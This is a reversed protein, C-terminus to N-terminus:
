PSDCRLYPGVNGEKEDVARLEARGISALERREVQGLVEPDDHEERLARHLTPARPRPRPQRQHQAVEVFIGLLAHGPLM